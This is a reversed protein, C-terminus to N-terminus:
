VIKPDESKMAYLWELLGIRGRGIGVEKGVIEMERKAEIVPLDM